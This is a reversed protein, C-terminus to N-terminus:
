LRYLFYLFLLFIIFILPNNNWLEKYFINNILNLADDYLVIENEGVARSNFIVRKKTKKTHPTWM